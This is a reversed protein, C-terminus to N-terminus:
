TSVMKVGGMISKPINFFLTSFPRYIFFVHCVKSKYLEDSLKTETQDLHDEVIRVKGFRDLHM